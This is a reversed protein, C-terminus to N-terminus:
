INIPYSVSICEILKCIQQYTVSQINDSYIAAYNSLESISDTVKNMEMEFYIECDTLIEGIKDDLLGRIYADNSSAVILDTIANSFPAVPHNVTRRKCSVRQELILPFVTYIEEINSM